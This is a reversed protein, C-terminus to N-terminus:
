MFDAIFGTTYSRFLCWDKWDGQFGILLEVLDLMHQKDVEMYENIEDELADSLISGGIEVLWFIYSYFDIRENKYIFHYKIVGMFKEIETILGLEEQVERKVADIVNEGYNIGGTPIRYIGEPYFDTRIVIVKKNKRQVAFAVEGRRDNEANHKIEKFFKESIVEIVVEKEIAANGYYQERLAELEKRDFTNEM